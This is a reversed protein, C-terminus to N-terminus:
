PCDNRCNRIVDALSHGTSQVEIWNIRQQNSYGENNGAFLSFRALPDNEGYVINGRGQFANIYQRMRDWNEILTAPSYTTLNIHSCRTTSVEGCARWLLWSSWSHGRIDLRVGAEAALDALSGVIEPLRTNRDDRQYSEPGISVPMYFHINISRGAAEAMTNSGQIAQDFTNGSGNITLCNCGRIIRFLEGINHQDPAIRESVYRRSPDTGDPWSIYFGEKARDDSTVATKSVVALSIFGLAALDDILRQFLEEESPSSLPPDLIQVDGVGRAATPCGIALPNCSGVRVSRGKPAVFIWQIFPTPYTGQPDPSAPVIGWGDPTVEGPMVHRWMSAGYCSFTEPALEIEEDLFIGFNLAVGPLNVNPEFLTPGRPSLGPLFDGVPARYHNGLHFECVDNTGKRGVRHCTRTSFKDSNGFRIRKVARGESYWTVGRCDTRVDGEESLQGNGVFRTGSEDWFSRYYQWWYPDDEYSKTKSILNQDVNLVLQVGSTGGPLEQYNSVVDFWRLENNPPVVRCDGAQEAVDRALGAPFASCDGTGGAIQAELTYTIFDTAEKQGLGDFQYSAAPTKGVFVEVLFSDSSGGRINFNKVFFQYEGLPATGDTPSFINEVYTGVVRPIDDNDLRGGSVPDYTNRYSIINGGPATM